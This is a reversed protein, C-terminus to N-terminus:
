SEDPVPGCEEDDDSESSEVSEDSYLYDEGELLLEKPSGGVDTLDAQSNDDSSAQRNGNTELEDKTPITSNDVESLLWDPPPGTDLEPSTENLVKGNPELQEPEDITAIMDAPPPGADQEKTEDNLNENTM